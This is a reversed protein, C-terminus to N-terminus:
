MTVVSCTIWWSYVAGVQYSAMCAGNDMHRPAGCQPGGFYVTPTYNHEHDDDLFYPPKQLALNHEQLEGNDVLFLCVETMNSMRLYDEVDFGDAESAEMIDSRDSRFHLSYHNRLYEPTINYLSPQVADTVIVPKGYAYYEEYFEKASLLARRDITTAVQTSYIWLWVSLVILLILMFAIRLKKFAFMTKTKRM